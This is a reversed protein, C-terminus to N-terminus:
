ECSVSRMVTGFVSLERRDGGRDIESSGDTKVYGRGALQVSDSGGEFLDPCHSNNVGVGLATPNRGLDADVNVVIVCASLKVSQPVLSSPTWSFAVALLACGAGEGGESTDGGRITEGESTDVGGLSPKGEIEDGM